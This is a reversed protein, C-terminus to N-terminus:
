SAMRVPQRGSNFMAQAGFLAPYEAQFFDDLSFVRGEQENHRRGLDETGCLDVELPCPDDPDFSLDVKAKVCSSPMAKSLIQGREGVSVGRVIEANPRESQWRQDSVAIYDPDTRTVFIRRLRATNLCATSTIVGDTYM